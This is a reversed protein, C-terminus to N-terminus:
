YHNRCYLPRQPTTKANDSELANSSLRIANASSTPNTTSSWFNGIQYFHTLLPAYAYPASGPNLNRISLLESMNPIRWDTYGLDTANYARLIITGWNYTASDQSYWGLGTLHDIIYHDAYVQLGNIDTFRNTNGFANNEKLTIFPSVADHDLEAVTLPNAPRTYDYVNNALNWADDYNAFSTTQGTLIPRQYLIGSPTISVLEGVLDVDDIKYNVGLLVNAVLPDTSVPCSGSVAQQVGSVVIKKNPKSIVVQNAM